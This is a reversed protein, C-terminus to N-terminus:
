KVIALIIVAGVTAIVISGLILAVYIAFNRVSM